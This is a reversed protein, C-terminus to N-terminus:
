INGKSMVFGERLFHHFHCAHHLKGKLIGASKKKKKYFKVLQDEFEVSFGCSRSYYLSFFDRFLLAFNSSESTGIEFRAVCSYYDLCHSALMPISMCMLPIFDLIWFSVEGKHDTSKRCPHWSWEIIFFYGKCCFTSLWSAKWMSFLSTPGKGWM